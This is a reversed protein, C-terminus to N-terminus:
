TSRSVPICASLLTGSTALDELVRGGGAGAWTVALVVALRSGGAKLPGGSETGPPALVMMVLRTTSGGCLGPTRSVVDYASYSTSSSALRLPGIGVRLSASM